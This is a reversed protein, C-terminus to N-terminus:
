VVDAYLAARYLRLVLNRLGLPAWEALGLSRLVPRWLRKLPVAKLLRAARYSPYHAVVARHRQVIRAFNATSQEFKAIMVPAPDLGLHTATNDFHTIPHSRVVRMAWEVDEWGWGTFGDDFREAEFVDRRVLLNSTFVHKEPEQRRIDVPACDSALAMHRHLALEGRQPAQDLSFGGFAVAPGSQEILELYAHLFHPSDPLMDSDIFLLWRGRAEAALRNRGGARGLNLQLVVLRAPMSLRDVAMAVGGALAEDGSGDDLLVVEVAGGLAPGEHNLAALLRTPDDHLFPILISVTPRARAWAPNEFLTESPVLTDSMM